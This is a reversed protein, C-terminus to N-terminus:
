RAAALARLLPAAKLPDIQAVWRVRGTVEARLEDVTPASGDARPRIAAAWGDRGVQHLVARLRRVEERAITLRENVIVGTVEQRRGKRMVRTKDDREVFGEDTLIARARFLLARVDAGTDNSFTLDDAYRTYAFGLARAMGALRADLRRCLLNTLIPSTCAGQPLQRDGLAVQRTHGDVAVEVRPAETCLLALLTSVAGSYGLRAFLGRVRVFTVSPFFDRLDLNVVVARGVHPAANSAVGRGRVFGHCAEHLRGEAAPTLVRAFIAQQAAKLSPKPASIARLGGTKKPIVFRHYHVVQASRRHTTLFRLRPLSVDLLRAVDAGTHLVPLGKALLAGEDSQTHELRASHGVGVFVIRAARENNWALRREAAIAARAAAQEKRRACSEAVRRAREADLAKKLSEPTHFAEATLQAKTSELEAREKAEDPPIPPIGETSPWFGLARMRSLVRYDNSRLVRERVVQAPDKPEAV